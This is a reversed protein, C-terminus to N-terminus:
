IPPLGCLVIDLPLNLRCAVLHTRTVRALDLYRRTARANRNCEGNAMDSLATLNIPTQM